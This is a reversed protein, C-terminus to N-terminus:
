ILQNGRIHPLIEPRHLAKKSSSMLLDSCTLLIRWLMFVKLWKLAGGKKTQYVFTAIPFGGQFPPKTRPVIMLLESHLKMLNEMALNSLRPIGKDLVNQVYPHYGM